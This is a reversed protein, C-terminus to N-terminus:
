PKRSHRRVELDRRFGEALQRGYCLAVFQVALEDADATPNAKQIARHSLQLATRSLSRALAARRAVTADRLLAFRVRETAPDTDAPRM